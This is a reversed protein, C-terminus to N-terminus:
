PNAGDAMAAVMPRAAEWDLRALASVASVDAAGNQSLRRVEEVLTERFYPSNFKLWQRVATKWNANEDPDDALLKYVRDYADSTQPLAHTLRALLYPRDECAALLRERVKDSLKNKNEAVDQYSHNRWYAILENIPADDAPPKEEDKSDDKGSAVDGASGPQLPTQKLLEGIAVAIQGTQPQPRPGRSPQRSQALLPRPLLLAFILLIALKASCRTLRM